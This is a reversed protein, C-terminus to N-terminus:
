MLDVIIGAVFAVRESARVHSSNTRNRPRTKIIDVVWVTDLRSKQDCSAGSINEPAGNLSCEYMDLRRKSNIRLCRLERGLIRWGELVWEV